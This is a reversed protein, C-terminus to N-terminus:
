NILENEESGNRETARGATFSPTSPSGGWSCFSNVHLHEIMMFGLYSCGMVWTLRPTEDGPRLSITRLGSAWWVPGPQAWSPNRHFTKIHPQNRAALLPPISPPKSHHSASNSPTTLQSHLINFTLCSFITPANYSAHKKHKWKTMRATLLPPISQLKSHYSVSNSPM